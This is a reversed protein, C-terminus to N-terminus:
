EGEEGPPKSLPIELLDAVKKQFDIILEAQGLRKQLKRNERELRAVKDALPNKAKPKRGRKVPALAKLAGEDRQKRWAALHSAYLGERRLLAGVEGPGCEEARKLVDLKYAATFRRRAPKELVEPDPREVPQDEPEAPGAPTDGPEALTAPTDGPESAGAPTDEPEAPTAPSVGTARRAGETEGAFGANKGDEDMERNM